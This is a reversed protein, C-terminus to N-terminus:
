DGNFFVASLARDVEGNTTFNTGQWSTFNASVSQFHYAAATRNFNISGVDWLSIGVRYVYNNKETWGFVPAAGNTPEDRLHVYTM